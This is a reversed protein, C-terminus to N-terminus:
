SLESQSSFHLHDYWISSTVKTKWMNSYTAASNEQQGLLMCM